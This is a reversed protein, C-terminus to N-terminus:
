RTVMMLRTAVVDIVVDIICATTKIQMKCKPRQHSLLCVSLSLFAPKSLCQGIFHPIFHLNINPRSSTTRKNPKHLLQCALFSNEAISVEPKKNPDMDPSKIHESIFSFQIHWISNV